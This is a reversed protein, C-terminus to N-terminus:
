KEKENVFNIQTAINNSTINMQAAEPDQVDPAANENICDCIEGADLYAGCNECRRHM